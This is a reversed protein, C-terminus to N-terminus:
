IIDPFPFERDLARTNDMDTEPAIAHIYDYLPKLKLYGDIIEDVLAPSKLLSFDTIEKELYFSRAPYWPLLEPHLDDPIKIRKMSNTYLNFENRAPAWADLFAEPELAIRRRFANMLSRNEKYFGMGYAAGETTIEFYVGPVGKEDERPQKFSLWIHDRYPSKDRSFRIDRNIRSVVRNPRRELEADLKEVIPALAEALALSPERVARLYWDHSGHFFEKNNNFRIAMFFEFTEDTYGQFM